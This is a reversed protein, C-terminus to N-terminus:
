PRRPRVKAVEEPPQLAKQEDPTLPFGLAQKTKALALPDRLASIITRTQKNRLLPALVTVGNNPCPAAFAIQFCGWIIGYNTSAAQGLLECCLTATNSFREDPVTVGADTYYWEDTNDRFTDLRIEPSWVPATTGGVLQMVGALDTPPTGDPDDYIGMAFSGAVSTPCYGSYYINAHLLKWRAYIAAIYGLRGSLADPGLDIRKGGSITTTGFPVLTLIALSNSTVQALPMRVEIVIGPGFPTNSARMHAPFAKTSTGFAAPMSKEALNSDYHMSVTKVPGSWYHRFFHQLAAVPDHAAMFEARDPATLHHLADTAQRLIAPPASPFLTHLISTLTTTAANTFWDILADGGLSSFAAVRARQSAVFQNVDRDTPESAPAPTQDVDRDDADSSRWYRDIDDYDDEREYPPPDLSAPHAAGLSLPVLKRVPKPRAAPKVKPQGNKQKNQPRKPAAAKAAPKTTSKTSM